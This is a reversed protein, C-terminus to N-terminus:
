SVGTADVGCCRATYSGPGARLKSFAICIKNQIRSNLSYPFDGCGVLEGNVSCFRGNETRSSYSDHRSDSVASAWLANRSGIYNNFYYHSRKFSCWVM